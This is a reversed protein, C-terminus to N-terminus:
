AAKGLVVARRDQWGPGVFGGVLAFDFRRDFIDFVIGQFALVELAQGLDIFMKLPPRGVDRVLADMAGGFPLNVGM